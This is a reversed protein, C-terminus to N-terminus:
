KLMLVRRVNALERFSVGSAVADLTTEADTILCGALADIGYDWLVPTLPTSPGLMIKYARPSCFNMVTEFTGNMLVTATLAVLDCFPLYKPMEKAPLDGAQPDLEFVYLNAVDKKLINVFPFHGIIAVNNGVGKKLILSTANEEVVNQALPALISNIAALGIGSKQPIDTLFYNALDTVSRGLFGSVMQDTSKQRLSSALGVGKSQVAILREGLVIRTVKQDLFENTNHLIDSKVSM